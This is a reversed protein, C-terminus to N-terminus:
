TKLAVSLVRIATRVDHIPVHITGVKLTILYSSPLLTVLNCTM